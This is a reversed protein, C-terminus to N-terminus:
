AGRGDEQGALIRLVNVVDERPLHEELWDFASEWEEEMREEVRQEIFAELAGVRREISGM